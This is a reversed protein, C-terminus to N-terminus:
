EVFDYEGEDIYRVFERLSQDWIDLYANFVPEDMPGQAFLFDMELIASHIDATYLKTWRQETNWTNMAEFSASGNSMRQARLSFSTCSKHAQCGYFIINYDANGASTEIFPDNFEDVTVIATQGRERLLDAVGEPNQSSIDQAAVQSGLVSFCAVMLGCKKTFEIMSM